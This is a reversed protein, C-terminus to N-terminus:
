YVPASFVVLAFILPWVLPLPRRCVWFVFRLVLWANLVSLVALVPYFANIGQATVAAALWLYVPRTQSVLNEPLDNTLVLYDDYIFPFFSPSNGPLLLYQTIVYGAIVGVLSLVVRLSASHLWPLADVRGWRGPPQPSTTEVHADIMAGCYAHR